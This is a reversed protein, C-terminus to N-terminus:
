DWLTFAHRYGGLKSGCAHCPDWSFETQECECEGDPWTDCTHEERPLGMSIYENDPVLSWPPRDPVSETEGNAHVQMCDDCVQITSHPDM